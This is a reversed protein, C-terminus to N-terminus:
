PLRYSLGVRLFPTSALSLKQDPISNFENDLLKLSRLTSVGLKIHAYFQDYLRYSMAPAISLQSSKCYTEEVQNMSAFQTKSISGDVNAFLGIEWNRKYKYLFNANPYAVEIRCNHTNYLLTGTPIIVNHNFDSNLAVGVGIKFNPNGKVAYNGLLVLYPFFDGGGLQGGLDSRLLIRPLFVVEFYKSINGRFIGSIRADHLITPFSVPVSEYQIATNRYYIAPNCTVRKGIKITPGTINLEFFNTVSKGSSDNAASKFQHTYNLYIPDEMTQAKLSTEAILVFLFLCGITKGKKFCGKHM